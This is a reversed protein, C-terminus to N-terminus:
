SPAIVNAAESGSPATYSAVTIVCGECGACVQETLLPAPVTAAASTVFTLTAQAGAASSFWRKSMPPVTLPSAPEPSTRCFLPSSSGIAELPLKVIAASWGAPVSYSTVTLTWGDFGLWAQVT